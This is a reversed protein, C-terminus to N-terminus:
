PIAKCKLQNDQWFSHYHILSSYIPTSKSAEETQKAEEAQEMGILILKYVL